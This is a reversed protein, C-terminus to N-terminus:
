HSAPELLFARSTEGIQAHGVIQGADNVDTAGGLVVDAPLGITLANLDFAQGGIWLTARM